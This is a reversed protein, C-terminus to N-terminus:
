RSLSPTDTQTGPARGITAHRGDIRPTREFMMPLYRFAITAEASVNIPGRRAFGDTLAAGVEAILPAPDFAGRLVVFGQTRFQEVEAASLEQMEEMM